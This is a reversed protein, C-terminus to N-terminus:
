RNTNKMIDVRLIIALVYLWLDKEINKLNEDDFVPSHMFFQTLFLTITTTPIKTLSSLIAIKLRNNKLSTSRDGVVNPPIWSYILNSFQFLPCFILTIKLFTSNNTVLNTKYYQYITLIFIISNLLVALFDLLLNVKAKQRSNVRRTFLSEWFSVVSPLWLGCLTIGIILYSPSSIYVIFLYWTSSMSSLIDLIFIPWFKVLIQSFSLDAGHKSLSRVLYILLSVGEPIVLISLCSYFYPTLIPDDKTQNNKPYIPYIWGENQNTNNSGQNESDSTAKLSTSMLDIITWRNFFSAASILIFLILLTLIKIFINIVYSITMNNFNDINPTDYKKLVQKIKKYTIPESIDQKRDYQAVEEERQNPLSWSNEHDNLSIEEFKKPDPSIKNNKLSKM